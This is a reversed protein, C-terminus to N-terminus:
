LSLYNLNKGFSNKCHIGKISGHQKRQNLYYKLIEFLLIKIKDPFEKIM